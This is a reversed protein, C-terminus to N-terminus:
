SVIFSAKGHTSSGSSSFPAVVVVVVGVVHLCTLRFSTLAGGARGCVQCHSPSIYHDASNTGPKFKALKRGLSGPRRVITNVIRRRPVASM